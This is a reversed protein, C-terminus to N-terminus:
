RSFTLHVNPDKFNMRFSRREEAAIPFLDPLDTRGIACVNARARTLLASAYYLVARWGAM